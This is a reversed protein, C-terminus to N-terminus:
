SNCVFSQSLRIIVPSANKIERNILRAIIPRIFWESLNNFIPIVLQVPRKRGAIMRDVSSKRKVKM